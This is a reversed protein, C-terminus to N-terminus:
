AGGGQRQMEKKLKKLAVGLFRETSEPTVNEEFQSKSYWGGCFERVIRASQDCHLVLSENFETLGAIGRLKTGGVQGATIRSLYFNLFRSMFRGFFRQGLRSFGVKTSLERLASKLQDPGGGFLGVANPGALSALAEGAAQQAMESIDTAKGTLLVRDDIANHVASTFELVGGDSPVVIGASALRTQWDDHRAAIVIQTLLYFTERLGEDVAARTLGTDAAEITLKAVEAVNDALPTKEGAERSDLVAAVVQEWRLSKPPDGLRSHGM